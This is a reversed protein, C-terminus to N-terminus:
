VAAGAAAALAIAPLCGVFTAVAFASARMPMMASGVTVLVHPTGILRLGIVYSIGHDAFRQGFSDLRSGFRAAAKPAGWRRAAAFLVLSGGLAGMSVTATAAVPGALAETALTAPILVGPIGAAVLSTTMLCLFAVLMATLLAGDVALFNEIGAIVHEFPMHISHEAAM